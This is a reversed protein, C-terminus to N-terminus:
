DAILEIQNIIWNDDGDQMNGYFGNIDFSIGINYTVGLDSWDGSPIDLVWVNDSTDVVVLTDDSNSASMYSVSTPGGSSVAVPSSLASTLHFIGTLTHYYAGSACSAVFDVPYIGTNVWPNGSNCLNNSNNYLIGFSDVIWVGSPGVSVFSAHSYPYHPVANLSLGLAITGCYLRGTLDISWIIDSTNSNISHAAIDIMSVGSPNTAIPSLGNSEDDIPKYLVSNPEDITVTYFNLKSVCYNYQIENSYYANTNGVSVIIAQITPWSVALLAAFGLSLM